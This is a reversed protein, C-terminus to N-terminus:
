MERKKASKGLTPDRVLTYFADDIGQRSKASTEIFSMYTNRTYGQALNADVERRPLDIKNSVVACLFHTHSIWPLRVLVIKSNAKLQWQSGEERGSEM